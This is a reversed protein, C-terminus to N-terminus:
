KEGEWLGVRNTKATEEAKLFDNKHQFDFKRYVVALGNELLLRNLLRGDPLRVYALLRGYRDKQQGDYELLVKKGKVQEINFNKAAHYTERQRSAPVGKSLLYNDRSSNHKEPTDIGILRVKGHPEIELTDGDYIWTITGELASAQEEACAPLGLLLIGLILLSLSTARVRPGLSPSLFGRYLLGM